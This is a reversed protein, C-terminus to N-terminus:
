RLVRAVSHTHTRRSNVQEYARSRTGRRPPKPWRGVVTDISFEVNPTPLTTSVTDSASSRFFPEPFGRVASSDKSRDITRIPSSVARTVLLSRFTFRYGTTSPRPARCRRHGARPQTEVVAYSQAIRRKTNQSHNTSPHTRPERTHVISRTKSLRGYVRRRARQFSRDYGFRDSSVCGYNRTSFSVCISVRHTPPLSEPKRESLNPRAATM